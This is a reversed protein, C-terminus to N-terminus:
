EGWGGGQGDNRTGPAEASWGGGVKGSGFCGWTGCAGGIGERGCIGCITEWGALPSEDRIEVEEGSRSFSYARSRPRNSRREEDEDEDGGRMGKALDFADQLGIKDTLGKEQAWQWVKQAPGDLIDKEPGAINSSDVPVHVTRDGCEVTAWYTVTYPIPAPAAQEIKKESPSDNSKFPEPSSIRIPGWGDWADDAEGSDDNPCSPANGGHDHTTVYEWGGHNFPGTDHLHDFLGFDEM